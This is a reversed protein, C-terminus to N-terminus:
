GMVGGATINIDEGSISSGAAGTLYIVMDAVHDPRVLRKLPYDYFLRMVEEETIGKMRAQERVVREPAIKGGKLGSMAEELGEFVVAPGEHVMM